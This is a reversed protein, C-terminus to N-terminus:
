GSVNVSILRLTIINSASAVSFQAFTKLDNAVNMNVNKKATNSMPIRIGNGLEISGQAEIMGGTGTVTVLAHLEIRFAMDVLGVPLTYAAGLGLSKVLGAVTEVADVGMVLTGPTTADTSITGYGVIKYMIGAAYSNIPLNLLSAFYTKTAVNTIINGAPVSADKYLTGEIHKEGINETVALGGPNTISSGLMYLMGKGVGLSFISRYPLIRVNNLEASPNEYPHKGFIYATKNSFSTYDGSITIQSIVASQTGFSAGTLQLPAEGDAIIYDTTLLQYRAPVVEPTKRTLIGDDISSGIRIFGNGCTSLRVRRVYTFSTDKVFIEAAKTHNYRSRYIKVFGSTVTNAPIQSGTLTIRTSTESASNPAASINGVKFIVQNSMNIIDGPMIDGKAAYSNGNADIFTSGQTIYRGEWVLIYNDTNELAREYVTWPTAYSTVLSQVAKAKNFPVRPAVLNIVGAVIYGYGQGSPHLQDSMMGENTPMSTRGFIEDQSNWLQVRKDWYNELSKWAKYIIDSQAQAAEALSAYNGQVVGTGETLFSNPMRLVINVGPIGKLMKNVAEILKAKYAAVATDGYGYVNQRVSNIGYSFIIGDPAYSILTDIGRGSPTNALFGELTNGNAGFNPMNNTVDFGAILDGKSTYEKVKDPLIVANSAIDSTSDGVFVMKTTTPTNALKSKLDPLYQGQFFSKEVVDALGTTLTADAAYLENFNTNIKGRQVGFTANNELVQKAM